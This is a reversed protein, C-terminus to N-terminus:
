VGLEDSPHNHLWELMEKISGTALAMTSDAAGYYINIGDGDEDITYGCPFVVDDVDGSLEYPEEPGFIWESGRILCKSPDDLDLLALGLRYISGAATDRVGHYFVLWGEDTEVPPPSLGIKNADWWAGERARLIMKHDGWHILDPSYSLWIHSGLGTTTPRHILAWRGNFKRPFLAANKDWPPMIDGIREFTRFDETIALSVGPGGRGFCTYAVAYKGIDPLFTIRPDEIGWLEEPHNEADPWFTPEADIEWHDIGNASRAAGLHSIGRRDEIRCLLLTTGDVLKTAAGNFVTNIPYPWDAATLIPNIIHRNLLKKRHNNRNIRSLYDVAPPKPKM